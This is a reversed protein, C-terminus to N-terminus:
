DWCTSVTVYVTATSTLVPTGDDVIDILLTYFTTTEYDLGNTSDTLIAPFTGVDFQSGADGSAIAYSAM